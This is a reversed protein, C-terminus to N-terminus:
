TQVKLPPLLSFKPETSLEGVVVTDGAADPTSKESSEIRKRAFAIFMSLHPDNIAHFLKRNNEGYLETAVVHHGIVVVSDKM